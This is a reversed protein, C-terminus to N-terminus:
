QGSVQGPTRSLDPVRSILQAFHWFGVCWGETSQLPDKDIKGGKAQPPRQAEDSTSVTQTSALTLFSCLESRRNRFAYFLILLAADYSIERASTEGTSPLGFKGSIGGFRIAQITETSLDTMLM